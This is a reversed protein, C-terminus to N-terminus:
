IRRHGRVDSGPEDRRSQGPEEDHGGPRRAADHVHVSAPRQHHGPLRRREHGRLRRARLETLRRVLRRPPRSRVGARRQAVHHRGAHRRAWQRREHQRADRLRSGLRSSRVREATVALNDRSGKWAPAAIPAPLGPITQSVVAPNYVYARDPAYTPRFRHRRLRDAQRDPDAPQEDPHRVSDGRDADDGGRRQRQLGAVAWGRYALPFIGQRGMWHLTAPVTVDKTADTAGDPRLVFSALTVKDSVAPDRITVDFWYNGGNAIGVNLNLVALHSGSGAPISVAQQTILQNNLTNRRKVSVIATGAPTDTGRSFTVRADYTDAAGSEWPRSVGGPARRPYQEIEPPISMKHAPDGNPDTVEVPNGEADVAATYRLTPNWSITSLDIPSDVALHATVSDFSPTVNPNAETPLVPAAVNFDISVPTDGVFSAPITVASSPVAVDNHRLVLTLDDTTVKSKSITAAFRVTGELPMMIKSGPRGSLTFDSKADFVKQSLGNVDAPVTAIDGVDTIATYTIKPAWTVEDNAGDGISGVRFFIRDGAGVSRTITSSFATAGTMLLTASSVETINQQIAVRVGDTSTGNAPSLTVPADISIAGGYPAVWRRVTDVLPSKEALDSEIDDIQSVSVAAPTGGAIPVPTAASNGKDFTPVGAVLHNFYVDGGSSSTPCDTATSTASTRM